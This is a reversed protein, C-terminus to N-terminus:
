IKNFSATGDTHAVAFNEAVFFLLKNLIQVRDLHRCLENTVLMWECLFRLCSCFSAEACRKQTLVIRFRFVACLNVPIGPFQEQLSEVRGRESSTVIELAVVTSM